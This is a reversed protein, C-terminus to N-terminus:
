QSSAPWVGNSPGGIVPSSSWSSRGAGVGQEALGQQRAEVGLDGEALALRGPLGVIQDM